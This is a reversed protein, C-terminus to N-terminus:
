KLKRYRKEKLLDPLGLNDTAEKGYIIGGDWEIYDNDEAYGMNFAWEVGEKARRKVYAIANLLHQDTMESILMIKGDKTRWSEKSIHKM